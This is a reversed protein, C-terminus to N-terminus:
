TFAGPGIARKNSIDEVLLTNLLKFIDKFTQLVGGQQLLSPSDSVFECPCSFVDTM